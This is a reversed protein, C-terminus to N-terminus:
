IVNVHSQKNILRSLMYVVELTIIIDQQKNHYHEIFDFQSNNDLINELVFQNEKGLM